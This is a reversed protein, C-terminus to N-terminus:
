GAEDATGPERTSSQQDHTSADATGHQATDRLQQSVITLLTGLFLLVFSSTLCYVALNLSAKDQEAALSALADGLPLGQIAFAFGFISFEVFSLRDSAAFRKRSRTSAARGLNLQGVAVIAALIIVPAATGVVVWFAEHYPHTM